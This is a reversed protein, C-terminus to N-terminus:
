VWANCTTTLIISMLALSEKLALIVPTQERQLTLSHSQKKVSFWVGHDLLELLSAWLYGPGAEM